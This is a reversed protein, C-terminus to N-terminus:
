RGDYDDEGLLYATTWETKKLEKKIRSTEPSDLWDTHVSFIFGGQENFFELMTPDVKNLRVIFMM